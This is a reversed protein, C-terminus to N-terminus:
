ITAQHGHAQRSGGEQAPGGGPAPVFDMAAPYSRRYIDGAGIRRTAGDHNLTARAERHARSLLLTTV